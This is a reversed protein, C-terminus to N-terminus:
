AFITKEGIKLKYDHDFAWDKIEEDDANSFFNDIFQERTGEFLDGNEVIIWTELDMMNDDDLALEYGKKFGAEFLKEDTYHFFCEFESEDPNIQKKFCEQSKNELYNMIKNKFM